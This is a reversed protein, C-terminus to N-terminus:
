KDLKLQSVSTQIHTETSLPGTGPTALTLTITLRPQFQDGKVGPGIIFELDSVSVESGTLPLFDDIGPTVAGNDDLDVWKEITSINPDPNLRYAITHPQSNTFTFCTGLPLTACESDTLSYKIGTRIERVMSEIAFRANDQNTQLNFAKREADTLILLSGVALTAVMTYVGVAVILELLTFGRVLSPMTNRRWNKM